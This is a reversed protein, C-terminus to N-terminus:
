PSRLTEQLSGIEREVVVWWESVQEIDSSRASRELMAAASSLKEACMSAAAGKLRHSLKAVRSFDGAGVASRMETLDNPLGDALIKILREALEHRGMCYEVLRQRSFVTHQRDGQSLQSATMMGVSRTDSDDEVLSYRNGRRLPELWISTKQPFFFLDGCRLWFAVVVAGDRLIGSIWGV